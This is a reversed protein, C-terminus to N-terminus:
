HTASGETIGMLSHCRACTGLLRGYIGARHDPDQLRRAEFGLLHIERALVGAAITAVTLLAVLPADHEVEMAALALNVALAAAAALVVRGVWVRDAHVRM